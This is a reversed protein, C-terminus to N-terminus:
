SSPPGLPIALGVPQGGEVWTIPGASFQPMWARRMHRSRNPGSCHLVTDSTIIATGPEVCLPLPPQGDSGPEQLQESVNSGSGGGGSSSTGHQASSPQAPTVHSGPRVIFCGNEEHM